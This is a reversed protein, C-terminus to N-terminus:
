SVDSNKINKRDDDHRKKLSWSKLVSWVANNPGVFFRAFHLL